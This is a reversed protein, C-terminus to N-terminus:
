RSVLAVSTTGDVDYDGYVLINEREKIAKEIRKVAVTMNKMLFPDHLNSLNPRFFDKAQDYTEIGRQVLIKAITGEVNLAKALVAVKKPNPEPKSTWRM